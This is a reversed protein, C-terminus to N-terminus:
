VQQSNKSQLFREALFMPAILLLLYSQLPRNKKTILDKEIETEEENNISTAALVTSPDLVRQDYAIISTYDKNFYSAIIVPLNSDLLSERDIKGTLNLQVDNTREVQLLEDTPQWHITHDDSASASTDKAEEDNPGIHVIWDADNSATVWDLKYYLYEESLEIIKKMQAANQTDEKTILQLKLKKTTANFKQDVVKEEVALSSNDSVVKWEVSNTGKSALEKITEQEKQPLIKWDIKRSMKRPTGVFDKQLSYSYVVSSDKNANLQDILTWASGFLRVGMTDTAQYSFLHVDGEEPISNRIARYDPNNYIREEIWFSITDEKDEELVPVAMLFCVLVLLLLRLFLLVYQSLQISRASESELPELFQLSGFSVVNKERKSLLHIILPVLLGLLPWWMWGESLIINSLNINALFGM